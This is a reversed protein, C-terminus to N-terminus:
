GWFVINMCLKDRGKEGNETIVDDGARGIAEVSSSGVVVYRVGEDWVGASGVGKGGTWMIGCRVGEGKGDWVGASGVSEDGTWM